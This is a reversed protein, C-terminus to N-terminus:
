EIKRLINNMKIFVLAGIGMNMFGLLARPFWGRMLITPDKTLMKYINKHQCSVSRQVETKIYDLPQSIVSGFFGGTAGLMFNHLLRNEKKHMIAMNVAMAFLSNRALTIGFGPYPPKISQMFNKSSTIMRTKVVELPNDLFTQCIGGVLGGYLVSQYPNIKNRLFFNTSYHQSSWYTLRMPVVGIMRPIVGKYFGKIGQSFYINKGLKIINVKNGIQSEKQIRTKILDLPHTTPVEIFGSIAGSVLPIYKENM